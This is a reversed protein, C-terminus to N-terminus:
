EITASEDTEFLGMRNGETDTFYASYGVGPIPSKPHVITAGAEVVSLMAADINPVEIVFMPVSFDESKQGLAGNIGAETDPGTTALWYPAGEWQQIDWGFVKEYFAAARGQDVVPLEFHVPRM